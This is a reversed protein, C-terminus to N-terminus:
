YTEKGEKVEEFINNWKRKDETVEISFDTSNEKRQEGIHLINTRNLSGRLNKHKNSM